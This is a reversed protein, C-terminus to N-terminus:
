VTNSVVSFQYKALSPSDLRKGGVNKNSSTSKISKNETLERNIPQKIGINPSTQGLYNENVRKM